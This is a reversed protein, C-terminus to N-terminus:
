FRDFSDVFPQNPGLRAAAAETVLWQGPGIKRLRLRIKLPGVNGFETITATAMFNMETEIEGARQVFKPDNTMNSVNCNTFTYRKLETNVRMQLAPDVHQLLEDIQNNRVLDRYMYITRHLSERDTEYYREFTLWAAFFAISGVLVKLWVSQGTNSWLLLPILCFVIGIFVIAFPNEVFTSM